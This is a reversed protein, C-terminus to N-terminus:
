EVVADSFDVPDGLMERHSVPQKGDIDTVGLETALEAGVFTKGSKEMLTPHRYLANIVRGTFEPSEAIEFFDGYKEPEAGM